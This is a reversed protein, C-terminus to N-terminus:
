SYNLDGEDPGVKHPDCYSIGKYDILVLARAYSGSMDLSIVM